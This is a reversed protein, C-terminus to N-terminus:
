KSISAIEIQTIGPNNALSGCHFKTTLVNFTVNVKLSDKKFTPSLNVPSYVENTGNIEVLWECGDAAVPGSYVIMANTNKPAQVQPNAAKKCSSIIIAPFLIILIAKLLYKDLNM